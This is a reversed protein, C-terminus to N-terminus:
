DLTKLKIKQFFEVNAEGIYRVIDLSNSEGLIQAATKPGVGSVSILMKFLNVEDWNDFGFLSIDNESVAMYTSVRVQEGENHKKLFNKNVYM